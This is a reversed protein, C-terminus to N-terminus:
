REDQERPRPRPSRRPTSRMMMRTARVLGERAERNTPDISVAARYAAMAGFADGRQLDRKGSALLEKVAQAEPSGEPPAVGGQMPPMPPDGPTVPAVPPEPIVLNGPPGPVILVRGPRRTGAVEIETVVRTVEPVSAALAAAVEVATSRSVKGSLTVTGEDVDVEIAEDRTLPTLSLMREVEGRIREDQDAPGREAEEGPGASGLDPHAGVNPSPSPRPEARNRAQRRASDTIRLVAFLAIAMLVFTRWRPWKRAASPAPPGPPPLIATPLPVPTVSGPTRPFARTPLTEIDAAVTPPPQPTPAEGSRAPLPLPPIPPPTGAPRPVAQLARLMEDASGFRRDRDKQLAKMLVDSLAPSLGLEPRALHPPTPATQLHHLIMGMATDSQFPLRGTVMEYLVVGLSYVDSRGDVEDGRKGMAQEPSIYQPTGVVVGTQTPAYGEGTDFAGEKVKAIGFDLVKAVEAGDPGRTMLINDPKIDRHVIGIAHAASLASAVEQAIRLARPVPLAGEQRIVERLNRGEVYEMVIFPRGDDTTDLDEVRVAHPHHLKRAVVAEQHFRRLFDDHDALTAGVVKIARVEGFARHRARYVSAMGGRGVRELIEYKGRLVMGPQLETGSRLASQDRPCVTFDDPYSSHCAECYRV